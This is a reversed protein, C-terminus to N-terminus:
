QPTGQETDTEVLTGKDSALAILNNDLGFFYDAENHLEQMAEEASEGHVWVVCEFKYVNM